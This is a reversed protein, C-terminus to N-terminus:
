IDVYYSRWIHLTLVSFLSYCILSVDVLLYVSTHRFPYFLLICMLLLQLCIFVALLKVLWARDSNYEMQLRMDETIEPNYEIAVSAEADM